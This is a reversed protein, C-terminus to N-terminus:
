QTPGRRVSALLQAFNAKQEAVTEAPGTMKFYYYDVPDDATQVISASMAWGEQAATPGGPMGSAFTGKDVEVNYRKFGNVEDESRKAAGDALGQFQGLWREINAEVAGGQGPGFYFVAIEAPGKKGTAQYTAKRMMRDPMKTWESPVDWVVENAAAQTNAQASSPRTSLAENPAPAAAQAPPAPEPEPKPKECGILVISLALCSRAVLPISNSLALVRSFM